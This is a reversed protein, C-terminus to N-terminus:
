ECPTGHERLTPLVSQVSNHVQADYLVADRETVLVPLAAMHGLSTTPTIVVPHGDAIESMAGELQAYLPLSVYARSTSFQCGYRLVAECAAMKLRTDTELGLYSCSGFNVLAHGDLTLKRGDLQQDEAVQHFVGHAKLASATTKLLNVRDMVRLSTSRLPNSM